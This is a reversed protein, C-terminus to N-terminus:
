VDYVYAPRLMITSHVHITYFSLQRADAHQLQGLDLVLNCEWFNLSCDSVQGLPSKLFSGAVCQFACRMSVIEVVTRTSVSSSKCAENMAKSINWDPVGQRGNRGLRTLCWGHICGANWAFVLRRRYLTRYVCNWTITWPVQAEGPSELTQRDLGQSETHDQRVEDTMLTDDPASGSTLATSNPKAAMEAADVRSRLVESMIEKAQKLRTEWTHYDELSRFAAFLVLLLLHTLLCLCIALNSRFPLTHGSSLLSHQHRHSLWTCSTDLLSDSSQLLGILRTRCALFHVTWLSVPFAEADEILAACQPVNVCQLSSNVPRSSQHHQCTVLSSYAPLSPTAISPHCVCPHRAM